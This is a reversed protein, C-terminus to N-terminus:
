GGDRWADIMHRPWHGPAILMADFRAALGALDPRGALFAAAGRSLRQRQRATVALSAALHDPRAKVEIFALIGGKRAIIDIEGAGAARSKRRRAVIRYGKLLLWLAAWNEAHRGRALAALKSRRPRPNLQAGM